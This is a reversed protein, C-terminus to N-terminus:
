TGVVGVCIYGWCHMGSGELGERVRRGGGRLSAEGGLARRRTQYILYILIARYVKSCTHVGWQLLM